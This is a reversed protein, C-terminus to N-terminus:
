SVLCSGARGQGGYRRGLERVDIWPTPRQKVPNWVLPVAELQTRLAEGFVTWEEVEPDPLECCFFLCLFEHIESALLPREDLLDMLKLRIGWERARHLPLGYTLWPNHAFVEQAEGAFDDLVDLPIEVQQDIDNWFEAVPEEDTCLRVILFIPLGRLDQLAKQFQLKTSPTSYGSRDSPVGDTALVVAVMKGEQQLQAARPQVEARIDRIHQTLPTCGEPSSAMAAKLSSLEQDPDEGLGVVHYQQVRPPPNLLRFGTPANLACALQSHFDVSERLEQWRTCPVIKTSSVDESRCVVRHGDGNAMSGSNDVVWVREPFSDEADAAVLRALGRPWGFRCVIVEERERLSSASQTAATYSPASPQGHQEVHQVTAEVLGLDDVGEIPRAIAAAAIM